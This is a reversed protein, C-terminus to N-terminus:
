WVEAQVRSGATRAATHRGQARNRESGVTRVEVTRVEVTRVEVTRVPPHSCRREGDPCVAHRRRVSDTAGAHAPATM